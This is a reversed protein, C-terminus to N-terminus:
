PMGKPERMLRDMMAGTGRDDMERPSLERTYGTVPDWDEDVLYRRRSVRFTGRLVGCAPCDEAGCGCPETHM